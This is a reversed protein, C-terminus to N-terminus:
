IKYKFFRFENNFLYFPTLMSATFLPTFLKCAHHNYYLSKYTRNLIMEIVFTYICRKCLSCASNRGSRTRKPAVSTIKKQVALADIDITLKFFIIREKIFYYLNQTVTTYNISHMRRGYLSM